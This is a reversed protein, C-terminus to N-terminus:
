KFWHLTHYDCRAEKYGQAIGLGITVDMVSSRGGGGMDQLPDSIKDTEALFFGM